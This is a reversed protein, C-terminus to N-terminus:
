APRLLQRRFAGPTVRTERKFFKVFNTAEEFGLAEAIAAVSSASHVLLRKAELTRRENLLAKATKGRIALAARALTKESCRLSRAYRGVGHWHRFEREVLAEFQRLRALAEPATAPEASSRPQALELRLLLTELQSRLLAGVLPRTAIVTADEMMQAITATVARRASTSLVVLPTQSLQEFVGHIRWEPGATKTM